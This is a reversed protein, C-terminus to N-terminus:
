FIGGRFDFTVKANGSIIVNHTGPGIQIAWLTHTGPAVTVREGEYTVTIQSNTTVVPSDYAISGKVSLTKSGSVSIDKFEPPIVILHRFPDLNAAISVTMRADTNGVTPTCYGTFKYSPEDNLVVDVKRGLFHEALLNQLETATQYIGNPVYFGFTASRNKYTPHGAQYSSLDLVGSRGPIEVEKLNMQPLPVIPRSAPILRWDLWSDKGDFIVSHLGNYSVIEM